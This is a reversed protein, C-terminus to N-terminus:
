STETAKYRVGRGSRARTESVIENETWIEKRIVRKREGNSKERMRNGARVNSAQLLQPLEASCAWKEELDVEGDNEWASHHEVESCKYLVPSQTCCPHTQLRYVTRLCSQGWNGRARM